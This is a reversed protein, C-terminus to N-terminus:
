YNWNGYVVFSFLSNFADDSEISITAYYDGIAAGPDQWNLQFSESEGPNITTAAPQTSIQWPEVGPDPNDAHHQVEIYDGQGDSDYLTLVSGGTNKIYLTFPFGPSWPDIYFTFGKPIHIYGPSSLITGSADHLQVQIEPGKVLDVTPIDTTAGASVTVNTESASLFGPHTFGIEYMGTPVDPFAFDGFDTTVTAIGTGEISVTTGSLGATQGDLTVTGTITGTESTLNTPSGSGPDTTGAATVEINPISVPAYGMNYFTVTYGTGVPVKSITYDGSDSTVAMYSTGDVVVFTGGNGASQGDLTTTGAISGTATLTIDVQTVDQTTVIIDTEVAGLTDDKQATVTYTGEDIDTIEFAGEEDTVATYIGKTKTESTEILGMKERVERTQGDTVKEASILVDSVDAMGEISVTGQIVAGYQEEIIPNECGFFLLFLICFLTTSFPLICSKLKLTM